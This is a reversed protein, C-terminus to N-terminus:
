PTNFHLITLSVTCGFMVPFSLLSFVHFLLMGETLLDSASAGWVIAAGLFAGLCQAIVYRLGDMKQMKGSIVFAYTVAPNIHGGSIPAITYVLVSIALGFAVSISLLLSTDATLTESFVSLAQVSVATGCGCWVFLTMAFFEALAPRYTDLLTKPQEDSM